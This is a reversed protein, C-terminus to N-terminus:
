LEIESETIEGDKIKFRSISDGGEWVLVAELEGSSGELAPKFIEEFVTGSREGGFYIESIVIHKGILEGKIESIETLEIAMFIGGDMSYIEPNPLQWGRSSLSENLDYLADLPVTLKNLRKTTWNSINYAM